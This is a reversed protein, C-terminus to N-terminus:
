LSTSFRWLKSLIVEALVPLQEPVGTTMLRLVQHSFSIAVQHSCSRIIANKMASLATARKVLESYHMSSPGQRFSPISGAGPFLVTTCSSALFVCKATLPTSRQSVLFPRRYTPLFRTSRRLLRKLPRGSSCWFIMRM